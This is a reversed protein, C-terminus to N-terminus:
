REEINWINWYNSDYRYDDGLSEDLSSTSFFMIKTDDTLSKFGNAYGSPIFLVSPSKESLVYRKVELDKSPKEWNDIKVAGVIASGKVVCIYKGEKKHAHWARTFNRKHNEVLYFRKVNKFNFENVFAVSGRDDVALGGKLHEVNDM